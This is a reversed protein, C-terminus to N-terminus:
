EQNRSLSSALATAERARRAYDPDTRPRCLPSLRQSSRVFARLTRCRVGNGDLECPEGLTPPPEDVEESRTVRRGACSVYMRRQPNSRLRSTSETWRKSRRSSENPPPRLREAVEQLEVRVPDLDDDAYIQDRGAQPPSHLLMLRLRPYFAVLIACLHGRVQMLGKNSEVRALGQNTERREDPQESSM